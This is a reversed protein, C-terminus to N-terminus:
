QIILSDTTGLSGCWFRGGVRETCTNPPEADLKTRPVDVYKLGPGVITEVSDNSWYYYADRNQVTLFM